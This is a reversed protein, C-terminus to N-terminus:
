IISCEEKVVNEYQEDNKVMCKEEQRPQYQKGYM